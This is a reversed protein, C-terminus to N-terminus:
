MVFRCPQSMDAMDDRPGDLQGLLNAYPLGKDGDCIATAKPKVSFMGGTIAGLYLLHEPAVRRLRCTGEVSLLRRADKSLAPSCRLWGDDDFTILGADFLADLNASLLLGNFVDLRQADDACQAWPRIHSARLAQSVDLGTVACCSNWYNMQAKRFIDQGIRVKVVAQMETSTPLHKELSEDVVKRWQELAQNPLAMALEAARRLVAALAAEDDVRFGNSVAQVDPTLQSTLERNLMEGSFAVIFYRDACSIAAQIRHRASALVVAKESSALLREWGQDLGTKEILARVFTDMASM